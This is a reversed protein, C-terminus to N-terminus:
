GFAVKGMASTLAAELVIAESLTLCIRGHRCCDSDGERCKIHIAYGVFPTTIADIYLCNNRAEPNRSESLGRSKHKTLNDTCGRLVSLVHGLQEARFSVSTEGDSTYQHRGYDRRTGCQPLIRFTVTGIECGEAPSIEVELKSGTGEQNGHLFTMM